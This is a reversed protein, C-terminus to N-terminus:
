LFVLPLVPLFVLCTNVTSNNGTVHIGFKWFQKLVIYTLPFSIEIKQIFSGMIFLYFTSFIYPFVHNMYLYREFDALIKAIKKAM